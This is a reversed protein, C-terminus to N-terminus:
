KHRIKKLNKNIYEVMEDANRCGLLYKKGNNLEILFCDSAKGYYATFKGIGKIENFLGWYGLFGGSGCVRITRGSPQYRKVSAVESLPFYKAFSLARNLVIGDESATISLPCFYLSSILIIVIFGAWCCQWWLEPIVFTAGVLLIMCLVSSIFVFNSFDVRQTM